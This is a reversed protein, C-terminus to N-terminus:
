EHGVSQRTVWQKHRTGLYVDMGEDVLDLLPDLTGFNTLHRRVQSEDFGMHDWRDGRGVDIMYPSPTPLWVMRFSEIRSLAVGSRGTWRVWLADALADYDMQEMVDVPEPVEGRERYYEEEEYARPMPNRVTIDLSRLNPLFTESDRISRLIAMIGDRLVDAVVLETLGAMFPLVRLFTDYACDIDLRELAVSSRSFFDEIVDAEDDAIWVGLATLSPLTFHSLIGECMSFDGALMLAQLRPRVHPHLPPAPNDQSDEDEASVSTFACQCHILSSAATLVLLCDRTSLARLNPALEFAAIPDIKLNPEYRSRWPGLIRLCQLTPLEMGFSIEQFTQQVLKEDAIYLSVDPVAM